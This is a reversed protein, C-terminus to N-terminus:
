GLAVWGDRSPFCSERKDDSSSHEEWVRETSTGTEHPVASCERVGDMGLGGLCAELLLTWKGDDETAM